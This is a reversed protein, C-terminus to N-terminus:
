MYIALVQVLACIFYAPFIFVIAKREQLVSCVFVRAIFFAINNRSKYEKFPFEDEKLLPSSIESRVLSVSPSKIGIPSFRWTHRTCRNRSEGIAAIPTYFDGIDPM